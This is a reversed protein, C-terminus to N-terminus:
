RKLGNKWSEKLFVLLYDLMFMIFIEAGGVVKLFALFKQEHM